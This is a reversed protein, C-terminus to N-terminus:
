MGGWATLQTHDIDTFIINLVGLGSGDGVASAMFQLVLPAPFNPSDAPQFIPIATGANLHPAVTLVTGTEIPPMLLKVLTSGTSSTVRVAIEQGDHHYSPLTILLPAAAAATRVDFITYLVKDRTSQPLTVSVSGIVPTVHFLVSDIGAQLGSPDAIAATSFLIHRVEKGGADPLTAVTRTTGQGVTLNGTNVSYILQGLLPALTANNSANGTYIQIPGTIPGTIQRAPVVCTPEIAQTSASLPVYGAIPNPM